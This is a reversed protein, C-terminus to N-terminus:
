RVATADKYAKLKENYDIMGKGFLQYSNMGESLRNSYLNYAGSWDLGTTQAKYDLFCYREDIIKWLAYLNGQPTNDIEDERVCGPLLLAALLPCLLLYLKRM